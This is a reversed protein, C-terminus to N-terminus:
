ISGPRRKKLSSSFERSSRKISACFFGQHPRTIAPSILAERRAFRRAESCGRSTHLANGTVNRGRSPKADDAIAALVGIALVPARQAARCRVNAGRAAANVTGRARNLGNYHALFLLGPNEGWFGDPIAMGTAEAARELCGGSDL